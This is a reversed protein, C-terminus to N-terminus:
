RVVSPPQTQCLTKSSFRAPIKKSVIAKQSRRCPIRSLSGTPPCKATNRVSSPPAVQFCIGGTVSGGASGFSPAKAALLEQKVTSPSFFTQNAVPPALTARTKWEVSRPCLQVTLSVGICGPLADAPIKENAKESGVFPM